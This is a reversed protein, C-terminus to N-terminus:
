KKRPRLGPPYCGPQSDPIEIAGATKRFFEPEGAQGIVAYAYGKARLAELATILLLKGIGNGRKETSVGIPGLFNRSTVEHCVFGVIIGDQVAIHCAIPSHSFALDAESKWGPAANGFCQEVWKLVTDKEYAMARRVRTGLLDQTQQLQYVDPLRYLKVLMDLTNEECRKL